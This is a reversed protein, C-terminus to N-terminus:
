SVNSRNSVLQLDEMCHRRSAIILVYLPFSQTDMPSCLVMMHIGENTKTPSTSARREPGLQGVRGQRNARPFRSIQSRASTGENFQLRESRCRRFRFYDQRFRVSYLSCMWGCM